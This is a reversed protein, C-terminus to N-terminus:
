EDGSGGPKAARIEPGVRQAIGAAARAAHAEMSRPLPPAAPAGTPAMRAQVARKLAEAFAGEQGRMTGPLTLRAISLHVPRSM